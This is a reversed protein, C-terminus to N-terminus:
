ARELQGNPAVPIGPLQSEHVRRRVIEVLSAIAIIAVLGVGALLAIMQILYAVFWILEGFNEMALGGTKMEATVTKEKVSNDDLNIYLTRNNYGREIESLEYSYESLLKHKAKLDAIEM